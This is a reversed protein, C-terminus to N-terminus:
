KFFKVSVGHSVHSVFILYAHLIWEMDGWALYDGEESCSGGRTMNGMKEISLTSSFIDLNTVTQSVAYWSGGYSSAGLIIKKSLDKPRSKSNKVEVFEEALVLSGEVVWHILGSTTNVAMCSKTWVNPFLPPVKGTLLPSNREHFGIMLRSESNKHNQIPAIFQDNNSDLMNFFRPPNQSQCGTVMITSCVTFSQPLSARPNLEAYTHVEELTKKSMKDEAPLDAECFTLSLVNTKAAVKTRKLAPMESTSADASLLIM